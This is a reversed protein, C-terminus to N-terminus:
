CFLTVLLSLKAPSLFSMRQSLVILALAVFKKSKMVAPSGLSIKFVVMVANRLQM